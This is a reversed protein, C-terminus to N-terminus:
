KSPSRSPLSLTCPSQPTQLCRPRRWSSARPTGVFCYLRKAYNKPPSCGPPDPGQDALRVDARVRTLHIRQSPTSPPPIKRGLARNSRCECISGLGSALQSRRKLVNARRTASVFRIILSEAGKRNTTVHHRQQTEKHRKFPLSTNTAPQSAGRDQWDTWLPVSPSLLPSCVGQGRPPVPVRCSASSIGPSPARGRWEGRPM